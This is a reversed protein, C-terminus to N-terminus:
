QQQQSPSQAPYFAGYNGGPSPMVPQGLYNNMNPAGFNQQGGMGGMGMGPQSGMMGMGPQGGMGMGPQNGMGPQGGMGMGPQNGMSMGPSMQMGVSRYINARDTYRRTYYDQVNKKLNFFKETVDRYWKDGGQIRKYVQEYQVMVNQLEASTQQTSGGISKLKEAHQCIVSLQARCSNNLEDLKDFYQTQM